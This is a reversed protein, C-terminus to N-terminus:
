RNAEPVELSPSTYLLDGAMTHLVVLRNMGDGHVGGEGESCTSTGIPDALDVCRLLGGVRERGVWM